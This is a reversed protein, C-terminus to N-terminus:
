EEDLEQQIIQRAISHSFGARAFAAYERRITAPDAEGEGRRYAGLRKRQALRQAANRELEAVDADEHASQLTATIEEASLGEAQLKAMVVRRSKGQHHLVRAKSAAFAADDIYQKGSFEEVIQTINAQLAALREKDQGWAPHLMAAKTLRMQLVRRLRTSNAAFRAVYRLAAARLAAADPPPPPPRNPKM